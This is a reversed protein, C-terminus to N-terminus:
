VTNQTTLNINRIKARELAMVFPALRLFDQIKSKEFLRKSLDVETLADACMRCLCHFVAYYACVVAFRLNEQTPEKSKDGMCLRKATEIIGTPSIM